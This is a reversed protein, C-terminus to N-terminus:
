YVILTNSAVSSVMTPDNGITTQTNDLVDVEPSLIMSNNSGNLPEAIMHDEKFTIHFDSLLFVGKCNKISSSFVKV